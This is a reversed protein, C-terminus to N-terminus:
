IAVLERTDDDSLDRETGSTQLRNRQRTWAVWGGSIGVAAAVFAILFFVHGNSALIISGGSALPTGGGDPDLAWSGLRFLVAFSLSSLLVRISLTRVMAYRRESLAVAAAAALTMSLLAFLVVRSVLARADRVVAAVGAAESTDLEIASADGLAAALRGEDVSVNQASLESVVVPVVPAVASQIDVVTSEGELAFLAAVFGEVIDDIAAKMEPRHRLQEMVAAAQADGVDQTDEIANGIWDYIREQAVEADVVAKASEAITLPDVTVARGWVGLLLLTTSLGFVWM